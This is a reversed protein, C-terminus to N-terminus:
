LFKRLDFSFYRPKLKSNLFIVKENNLTSDGLILYGCDIMQLIKKRSGVGSEELKNISIGIDNFDHVHNLIKRVEEDKNKDFRAEWSYRSSLNCEAAFKDVEHKNKLNYKKALDEKTLSQNTWDKEFEKKNIRYKGEGLNRLTSSIQDYDIM